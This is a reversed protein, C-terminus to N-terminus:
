AQALMKKPRRFSGDRGAMRMAIGLCFGIVAGLLTLRTRDPSVPADPLGPSEIVRFQEGIQAAEMSASLIAQEKKMLLDRYTATLSEHELARVDADSGSSPSPGTTGTRKLLRSRVNKIQGDLFLNASRRVDDRDRVAKFFLFTLSGTVRMAMQPDTSAYAIEFSEGDADVEVSIDRRMREIASDTDRESTRLGRDSKYLDFSRITEELNRRSLLISRAARVHEDLTIRAAPEVFRAPIRQPVLLIQAHSRYVPPILFSAAYAIAAVVVTTFVVVSPWGGFSAVTLPSRTPTAFLSQDEIAFSHRRTLTLAIAFALQSPRGPLAGLEALWEERMRESLTHPLRRARARVLSASVRPALALLGGVLAALFIAVSVLDSM